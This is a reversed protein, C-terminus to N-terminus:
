KSKRHVLRYGHSVTQEANAQQQKQLPRCKSVEGLQLVEGQGVYRRHVRSVGELLVEPMEPLACCGPHSVFLKAPQRM